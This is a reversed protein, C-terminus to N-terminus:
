AELLAFSDHDEIHAAHRAAMTTFMSDAEPSRETEVSAAVAVIFGALTNLRYEDWCRDWGYDDVGRDLLARHYRRVLDEEHERRLETPLGAGIFYSADITGNAYVVSQWDVVAVPVEGGRAEFLLNDLRFDCHWLCRPESVRSVWAAAAGGAFREAVRVTTDDLLDAYRERFVKQAEPMGGGMAHWISIGGTLWGLGRLREDRWSGAHLAAAQELAAGARDPDCGAVQGCEAAPSLDELVLCFDTGDESVWGHHCAPTRIELDAAVETYFAVERRYCDLSAAWARGGADTTPVKAVVSRPARPAQPAQPAQPAEDYTPTLLYTAGLRGSGVRRHEVETVRGGDLAGSGRLVTTLWDSTLQEPSTAADMM